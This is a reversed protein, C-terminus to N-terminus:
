TVTFVNSALSTYQVIVTSGAVGLGALLSAPIVITTPSVGGQTGGTNTTRINYQHLQLSTGGDASTVRVTTDDVTPDPHGLNTGTITIDGANPTDSAAAGIVTLPATFPTVGDDEVVEIAAGPTLAPMRRPDPNYTPDLYGNIMGVQFSKIAVDTEIFRPAITDILANRSAITSGPGVTAIVTAPSVDLPGGVPLTATILAAVTPVTFSEGDAFGVATNFTSNANVDVEVYSGTGGTNSQLVFYTLTDDLRATADLGAAILATNVANVLDQGSAYVATAVTVTTFGAASDVKAELTQNGANITAGGSVDTSGQLGAPIADLAAGVVSANPRGVRREQGEPETPPNYRSITELDMLAVPGPMDGRIVGVYM